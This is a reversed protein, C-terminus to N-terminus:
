REIQINKSLLKNRTDSTLGSVECKSRNLSLGIAAAGSEFQLFDDIVTDADGCLTIDDLYGLVLDSKM